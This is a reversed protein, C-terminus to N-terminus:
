VTEMEPQAVRTADPTSTGTPDRDAGAPPDQKKGTMSMQPSVPLNRGPLLMNWYAWKFALKGAHNLRSEKLLSMPGIVPFPFKGPLPETDYNFDILTAKGFGTEIFCNAHGDFSPELEEGKIYHLINEVLTDAMFHAVSGAKSTPVNTADGIVFINKHDAAQLTHKNTPIFNLDDADGMESEDVFDAGMNVPVEVLLDFEVEKGDYSIIRKNEEDVRELYFDPIVRIGKQSLLSGLIKSAKPKTFASDMPTVYLIEVKDRMGRKTFFEDALFAFELPAVPCKYISEAMNIVLTGGEWSKLKDALKCAGEFTYFDFIDKYWLAGDLGPTEEPRPTTGTGVVLIDYKVPSGNKLEIENDEPVVRTVEDWIVKAGKPFFDTKPRVVDEPKYIGFPIFLFGPQYYHTKDKDIITIEWNDRDLTKHLKNLMMTGATGAGLIVLQKM